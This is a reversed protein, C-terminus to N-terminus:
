MFIAHLSVISASVGCIHTVWGVSALGRYLLAHPFARLNEAGHEGSNPQRERRSFFFYDLRIKPNVFSRYMNHLQPTTHNKMVHIYCWAWFRCAKEAPALSKPLPTKGCAAPKKHIRCPKGCAAPKKHIRFAKEFDGVCEDEWGGRARRV